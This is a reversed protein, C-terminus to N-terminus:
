LLRLQVPRSCRPKGGRGIAQHYRECTLVLPCAQEGDLVADYRRQLEPISEVGTLGLARMEDSLCTLLDLCLCKERQRVPRALGLPDTTSKHQNTM